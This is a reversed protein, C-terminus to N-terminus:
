KKKRRIFVYIGASIVALPILIIPVVYLMIGQIKSIFLPEFNRSKPRISIMEKDMALFSVANLFLDRNGSSAIFTNNAFESSGMVVLAGKAGQTNGESDIEVAASVVLPAPIDKSDQTARGEKIGELDTEGWSGPNTNALSAAAGTLEFTRCMPLFTAVTFGKTIEHSEYSSIVPMLFDGGLMKSIKDVVIDNHPKIGYSALMAELNPARVMPPYLVFVRGKNSIFKKLVEIERPFFDTKPGAIIVVDADAPVQAMTFLEIQHPEYNQSALAAKASGYGSKDNAPSDISPEGHGSTFYVKKKNERLLRLLANTFGEETLEYVNETTNTDKRNLIVLGYRDVNFKKAMAPNKDADVPNYRFRSNIKEYSKLTDEADMNKATVSYFYYAEVDKKLGKLAKQTQDSLSYKQSKTLDFQKANSSAVAMVLVAAGVALLSYVVSNFGQRANKGSLVAIIIKRKVFLVYGACVIGLGLAILAATNFRGIFAGSLGSLIILVLGAILLVREIITKM